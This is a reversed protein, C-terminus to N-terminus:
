RDKSGRPGLLRFYAKVLDRYPAPVEDPTLRDAGAYPPTTAV